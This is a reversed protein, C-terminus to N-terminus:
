KKCSCMCFELTIESSFFFPFQFDTLFQKFTSIVAFSNAVFYFIQIPICRSEWKNYCLDFTEFLRRWVKQNGERDLRHRTFSFFELLTRTLAYFFIQFALIICLLFFCLFLLLCFLVLIFRVLPGIEQFYAPLATQALSSCIGRLDRQHEERTCWSEGLQSVAQM